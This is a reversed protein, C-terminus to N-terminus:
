CPTCIVSLDTNHDLYPLVIHRPARLALACLLPLSRAAPNNRRLTELGPDDCVTPPIAEARALELLPVGERPPALVLAVAFDSDIPRKAYVPQPMALDYAVLLVEIADVQCQLAAELLGAAFSADDASISASPGEAHQAISWYGAPANHVSNHFQTPSLARDPSILATCITDILPMDGTSSAFVAARPPAGLHEVAQQAASMALRVSPTTRRRENRPLSDLRPPPLPTSRYAQEGRLVPAAQEPSELGPAYLGIGLVSCASM